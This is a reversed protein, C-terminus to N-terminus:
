PTRKRLTENGCQAIVGDHRIRDAIREGYRRRFSPKDGEAMPPLNTTMVTSLREQYRYDLVDELTERWADNLGEVGLDDLVLLPARRMDRVFAKDEEDFMSLRSCEVARVFLSRMQQEAHRQIAAMAALSKGVGPSGTLLLFTKGGDLFERVAKVGATEDLGKRLADINRSGAGSSEIARWLRDVAEIEARVKRAAEELRELEAMVARYEALLEPNAADWKERTERAAAIRAALSWHREGGLVPSPRGIATIRAELENKSAASIAESTM